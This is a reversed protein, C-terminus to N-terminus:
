LWMVAASSKQTIHEPSVIAVVYKSKMMEVHASSLPTISRSLRFVIVHLLSLLYHSLSSPVFLFLSTRSLVISGHYLFLFFLPPASSPLSPSLFLRLSPSLFSLHFQSISCPPFLTSVVSPPFPFSSVSLPISNPLNSSDPFLSRFWLVAFRVEKLECTLCFCELM